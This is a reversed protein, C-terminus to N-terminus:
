QKNMLDYSDYHQQVSLINVVYKGLVIINKIPIQKRGLLRCYLRRLNKTM